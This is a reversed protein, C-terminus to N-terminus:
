ARPAASIMRAPCESEHEYGREARERAADLVPVHTRVRAERNTARRARVGRERACPEGFRAHPATRHCGCQQRAPALYHAPHTYPARGDYSGASNGDQVYKVHNFFCIVYPCPLGTAGEIKFCLCDDPRSGM